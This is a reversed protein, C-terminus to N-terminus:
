IPFILSSVVHFTKGGRRSDALGNGFIKAVSFLYSRVNEAVVFYTFTARLSFSFYKEPKRPQLLLGHLVALDDEVAVAAAELPQLQLGLEESGAVVLVPGM